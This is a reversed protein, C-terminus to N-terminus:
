VRDKIHSLFGFPDELTQYFSASSFPYGLYDDALNWKGMVPNHHIYDFKQFLVDPTYMEVARSKEKWIRYARDKENVKFRKLLSDSKISKILMRSTYKKFSAVPSEKGNYELMELVAHFHNPMIVFAYIKLKGEKELFTMSDILIQKRSDDGLLPIWDKITCTFFYIKRMDM